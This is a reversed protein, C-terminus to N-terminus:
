PLIQKKCLGEFIQRINKFHETRHMSEEGPIKAIRRMSLQKEVSTPADIEQKQPPRHM